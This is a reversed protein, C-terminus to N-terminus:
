YLRYHPVTDSIRFYRLRMQINYQHKQLTVPFLDFGVGLDFNETVLTPTMRLWRPNFGKLGGPLDFMSCTLVAFGAIRTCQTVM